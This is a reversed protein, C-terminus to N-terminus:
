TLYGRTWKPNSFLYLGISPFKGNCLRKVFQPDPSCVPGKKFCETPVSSSSSASEVAAPPEAAASAPPPAGAPENEAEPAEAPKAAGCAVSLALSVFLSLRAVVLGM